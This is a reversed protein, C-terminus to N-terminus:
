AISQRLHFDHWDRYVEQDVFRIAQTGCDMVVPLEAFRKLTELCFSSPEGETIILEIRDYEICRKVIGLAVLFRHPLSKTTQPFAPHSDDGIGGPIGTSFAPFPHQFFPTRL